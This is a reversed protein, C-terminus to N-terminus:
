SSTLLGELARPVAEEELPWFVEGKSDERNGM